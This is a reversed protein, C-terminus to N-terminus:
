KTLQNVAVQGLAVIGAGILAGSTKDKGGSKAIFYGVVGGLAVLGLSAPMSLIPAEKGSSSQSNKNDWEKACGIRIGIAPDIAFNTGAPIADLKKKVCDSIWINKPTNSSPPAPEGIADAQGDAAWIGGGQPKMYGYPYGYPNLSSEYIPFKSYLSRTFHPKIRVSTGYMDTGHYNSHSPKALPIKNFRM